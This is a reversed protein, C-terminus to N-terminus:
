KKQRLGHKKDARHNLGRGTSQHNYQANDNGQDCDYKNAQHQRAIDSTFFLLGTTLSRRHCKVLTLPYFSALVL